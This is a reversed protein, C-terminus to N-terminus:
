HQGARHLFQISVTPLTLAVRKSRNVNASLIFLLHLTIYSLCVKVIVHEPAHEPFQIETQQIVEVGGLKSFTIAKAASLSSM